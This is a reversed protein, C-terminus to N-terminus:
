FLIHAGLSYFTINKDILTAELELTVTDFLLAGFGLGGAAGTDNKKDPDGINDTREIQEYLAGLKGKVYSTGVVPLRYVFYAAGTSVKYQGEHTLNGDVIQDYEGGSSSSSLVNLTVNVEAEISVNQSLGYGYLLGFSASNRANQLDIEMFGLKPLLYM